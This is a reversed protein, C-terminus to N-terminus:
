RVKEKILTVDDYGIKHFYERIEHFLDQCEISTVIKGNSKKEQFYIGKEDKHAYYNVKGNVIVKIKVQDM